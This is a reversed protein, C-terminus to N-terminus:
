GSHGCEWPTWQTWVGMTAVTDVSGYHGSHGCEFLTWKTRVGMTDVTDVSGYHGSHTWVEIHGSKVSGVGVIVGTYVDLM